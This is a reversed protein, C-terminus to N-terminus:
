RPQRISRVPFDDQVSKPPCAIAEEKYREFFSNAFETPIQIVHNYSISMDLKHQNEFLSRKRSKVHLKLGNYIALATERDANYHLTLM